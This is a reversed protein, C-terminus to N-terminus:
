DVLPNHLNGLIGFRGDLQQYPQPGVYALKM